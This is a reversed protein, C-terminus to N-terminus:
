WYPTAPTRHRQLIRQAALRVQREQTRREYRDHHDQPEDDGPPEGASVYPMRLYACIVNLITERQSGTNQGLRELAYLGGLRVAAASSGLQEVAKTYLETIRRETADHDTARTAQENSWQRRSALVLAVVGGTAVGVALGTKVLEIRAAADGGVDITLLLVTLAVAALVVVPTVTVLFIVSWTRPAILRLLRPAHDEPQREAMSM